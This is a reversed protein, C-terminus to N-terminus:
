HARRRGPGFARGSRELLRRELHARGDLLVPSRLLGHRPHTRVLRCCRERQRDSGGEGDRLLVDPPQGTPPPWTAASSSSSGGGVRSPPRPGTCRGTSPLSVTGPTTM